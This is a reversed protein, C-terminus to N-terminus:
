PHTTCMEWYGSLIIVVTIHVVNVAVLSLNDLLVLTEADYFQWCVHGAANASGAVSGFLLVTVAYDLM